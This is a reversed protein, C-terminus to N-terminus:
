VFHWHARRDCDIFVRTQHSPPFLINNCIGLEVYPYALLIVRRLESASCAVDTITKELCKKYM